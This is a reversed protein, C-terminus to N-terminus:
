EFFDSERMSNSTKLGALPGPLAGDDGDPDNPEWAGEKPFPMATKFLNQFVKAVIQFKQFFQM